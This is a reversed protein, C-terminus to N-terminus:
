EPQLIRMGALVAEVRSSVRLTRFISALHVKVTHESLGLAQAIDRNSHGKVLLELVERQRPTLAPSAVAESAGPLSSEEPKNSIGILDQVLHVLTMKHIPKAIFFIGSPLDDHTPAAHGSAVLVGIQRENWIKNALEFGDMSSASLKVDTVVAKIDNSAELVQLADDANAVPIVKFGSDELMNGLTM